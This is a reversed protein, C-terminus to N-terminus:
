YEEPKIVCTSGRDTETISWIHERRMNWASLIRTGGISRKTTPTGTMTVWRKVGAGRVHRDLLQIIELQSVSELAGPIAVVRALEFLEGSGHWSRPRPREWSKREYQDAQVPEDVIAQLLVQGLQADIVRGNGEVARAVPQRPQRQRHDFLHQREIARM